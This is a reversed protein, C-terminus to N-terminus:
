YAEKIIKEIKAIARFFPYAQAPVVANGLAKLRAARHPISVCTRPPEYSHQLENM